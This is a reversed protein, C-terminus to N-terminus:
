YERFYLLLTNKIAGISEQLGKMTELKQNVENFDWDSKRDEFPYIRSILGHELSCLGVSEQLSQCDGNEIVNVMAKLYISCPNISLWVREKVNCVPEPLLDKVKKALCGSALVVKLGLFQNFVDFYNPAHANVTAALKNVLNVKRALTDPNM